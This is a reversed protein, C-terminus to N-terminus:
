ATAAVGRNMRGHLLDVFRRSLKGMEFHELFYRHGAEGLQVRAEDTMAYITRLRTALAASDGASCCLGAGSDEIIRAGEGDLAAVIPKGAALYAQIKSPVTYSLSPERRLSILLAGARSFIQPMAEMPFRGALIVNSLGRKSCESRVWELRSGSGVLVMRFGSLNRLLDAADVLTEVSQANGINGAFVVCFYHELTEVLDASLSGCSANLQTGLFPNPFYVIKEHKALRAVPKVFARSQVLLTDCYSYILRVIWEVLWLVVSSRIYGTAALSQPWLDQIWLALHAKKRWRMLIAPIAATIPSPAYVFVVDISLGTSLKPFHRLGSWVFSLYNLLLNLAGRGRPRLPVRILRICGDFLEEGMGNASYGPFTDGDPYNPQGTFVTVEHGISALARAFDNIIFSEPWFYQTVIAIRM